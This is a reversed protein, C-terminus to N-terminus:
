RTIFSPRHLNVHGLDLRVHLGFLTRYSTGVVPADFRKQFIRSNNRLTKLHNPGEFLQLQAALEFADLTWEVACHSWGHRSEVEGLPVGRVSRMSPSTQARELHSPSLKFCM